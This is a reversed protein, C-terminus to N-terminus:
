VHELPAHTLVQAAPSVHVAPVHPQALPVRRQADLQMAVDDHQV